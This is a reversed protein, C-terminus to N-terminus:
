RQDTEALNKESRTEERRTTETRLRKMQVMCKLVLLLAIVEGLWKTVHVNMCLCESSIEVFFNSLM